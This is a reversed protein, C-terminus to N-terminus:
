VPSLGTYSCLIHHRYISLSATGKERSLDDDSVKLDKSHKERPAMVAKRTQLSM